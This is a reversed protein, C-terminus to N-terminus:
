SYSTEYLKYTQMTHHVIKAAAHGDGFPNKASAMRKYLQKDEILASVNDIIDQQETGILKATGAEIAEPRETTDRMVLVPKGLAPAEEQIGGSDTLILYSCKMLQTFRIYDMPPILQINYVGNLIRNVPEQVNPNLHVPYIFTFSPYKLALAKIAYCINEFGNGFNERRHGTILIINEIDYKAILGPCNKVKNLAFFLADIVTNGTIFVDEKKLGERLLNEKAATTPAFHLDAIKSIVQRNFEEPFPSRMNYTRLGAEVHAIKIKRNFAAMASCMATSTDGQVFIIDPKVVDLYKDVADITRSSLSNLSQDPQMINLSHNITIEFFDIIPLVMEKHQGTFCTDIEVDSNNEFAKIVAALKIVEPRTGFIFSVKM